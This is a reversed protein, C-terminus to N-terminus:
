HNLTSATRGSTRLEIGLVGRPLECSDTIPRISDKPTCLFIHLYMKVIVPQSCIEIESHGWQAPFIARYHAQEENIRSNMLKALNVPSPAGPIWGVDLAFIVSVHQEAQSKYQAPSGFKLGSVQSLGQRFFLLPIPLQTTIACEKMGLVSM